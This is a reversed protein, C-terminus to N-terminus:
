AKSIGYLYATSYQVYTDSGFGNTISLSTIASTIDNQFYSNWQIHTRTSTTNLVNGMANGSKNESANTYDVFYYQSPGFLNAANDSPVAYNYEFSTSTDQASYASGNYNRVMKERYSTTTVGNLRVQTNLVGGSQSGRLNYILVLDTYTQPISSFTITNIGAANATYSAILKYTAM